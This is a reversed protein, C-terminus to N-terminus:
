WEKIAMEAGVVALYAYECSAGERLLIKFADNKSVGHNLMNRARDFFVEFNISYNMM